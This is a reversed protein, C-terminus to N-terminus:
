KEEEKNSQILYKIANLINKESADPLLNKSDSFKNSSVVVCDKYSGFVVQIVVNPDNKVIEHIEDVLSKRTIIIKDLEQKAFISSDVSDDHNREFKDKYIDDHTEEDKIDILLGCEEGKRISSAVLESNLVKESLFEKWREPRSVLCLEKKDENYVNIYDIDKTNWKELLDRVKMKKKSEKKIGLEIRNFDSRNFISIVEMNLIEESWEDVHKNKKEDYYTHEDGCFIYENTENDVIDIEMRTGFDSLEYFDRVLM